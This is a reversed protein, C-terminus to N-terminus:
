FVETKEVAQINFESPRQSSFSLYDALWWNELAFQITQEVGKENVFFLRLCGESVFYNSKCINGEVLLNQKKIVASVTFYKRIEAYEQEHIEIFKEIHKKLNETM